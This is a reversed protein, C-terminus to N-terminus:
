AVGASAPGAGRRAMRNQFDMLLKLQEPTLKLNGLGSTDANERMPVTGTDLYNAHNVRGASTLNDFVRRWPVSGEPFFKGAFDTAQSRRINELDESTVHADSDSVPVDYDTMVQSTDEDWRPFAYETTKGIDPTSSRAINNRIAEAYSGTAPAYNLTNDVYSGIGADSGQASAPQGQAQARKLMAIALGKPVRASACKTLFGREYNTM